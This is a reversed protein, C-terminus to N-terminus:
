MTWASIRRFTARANRDRVEVKAGLSGDRREIPLLAARLL